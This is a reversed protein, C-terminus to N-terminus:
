AVFNSFIYKGLMVLGFVGIVFAPVVELILKLWKTFEYSKKFMKNLQQRKNYLDEDLSNEEIRAREHYEYPGNRIQEEKTLYKKYKIDRFLMIIEPFAFSLFYLFFYLTIFFIFCALINQNSNDLEINLLVFGSPIQHTLGLFLSLTSLILSNRKVKQTTKTFFNSSREKM